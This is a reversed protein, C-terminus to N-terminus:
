PAFEWVAGQRDDVLAVSEAALLEDEIEKRPWGDLHEFLYETSVTDKDEAEFAIALERRIDTHM